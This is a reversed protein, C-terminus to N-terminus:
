HPTILVDLQSLRDIALVVRDGAIVPGVGSPTGTFILDGAQLTYLKSLESIIEPNKWIMDAFDADQRLQGNVWLKLSGREFHGCEAVPVIPAIPASFDFAKGTDWPHGVRAAAIQLDRRTMDLGCAYGFVHQLADDTAINAGGKGIAIVLEGEFHLNSTGPPYPMHGNTVVADAPKLFFCVADRTPESGMERIHAAYNKGVCYIRNVPFLLDQGAIAVAPQAHPALTFQM